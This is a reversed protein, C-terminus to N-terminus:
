IQDKCKSAVHQINNPVQFSYARFCALEFLHFRQTLHYCFNCLVYFQFCLGLPKRSALVRRHRNKRVSKGQQRRGGVVGRKYKGIVYSSRCTKWTEGNKEERSRWEKRAWKMLVDAMEEFSSM